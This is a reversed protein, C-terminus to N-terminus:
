EAPFISVTRGGTSRARAGFKGPVCASIGQTCGRVARNSSPCFRRLNACGPIGHGGQPNEPIAKEKQELYFNSQAHFFDHNSSSRTYILRANRTTQPRNPITGRISYISHLTIPDLKLPPSNVPTFSAIFSFTRTRSDFGSAFHLSRRLARRLIGGTSLITQVQAGSTTTRPLAARTTTETIGTQRNLTVCIMM